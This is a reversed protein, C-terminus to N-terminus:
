YELRCYCHKSSSVYSSITLYAVLHAQHRKVEAVFVLSTPELALMLPSQTFLDSPMFDFQHNVVMVTVPLAHVQIKPQRLLLPKLFRPLSLLLDLLLILLVQQALLVLLFLHSVHTSHQFFKPFGLPLQQLLRLVLKIIKTYRYITLTIIAAFMFLSMNKSEQM